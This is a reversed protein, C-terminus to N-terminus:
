GSPEENGPAALGREWYPTGAFRERLFETFVQNKPPMRARATAMVHIGYSPPSWDPLVRTLRGAALDEGVVFWPVRAIGMGQLAAQRLALSSNAMLGGKVPVHVQRAGQKLTWENPKDSLSYLLAEHRTLDEPEAPPTIRALYDAHAVLVSRSDGVRTAVLSSDPLEGIRVALDFGGEVLDLRRDDLVLDVQIEPYRAVFVGIAPAIHLLGFSMPANIRLTGRPSARLTLAAEEADRVAAAAQQAHPLTARGAETLTLRRTTRQLLRVGLGSELRAVTASVVSKSIGLRRAAESFGQAEAVTAFVRWDDLSPRRSSQTSKM